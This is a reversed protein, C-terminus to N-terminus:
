RENKKIMIFLYVSSTVSGALLSLAICYESWSSMAFGSATVVFNILWSNRFFHGPFRSFVWLSMLYTIAFAITSCVLFVWNLPSIEIHIALLWSFFRNGIFLFLLICLLGGILIVLAKDRLDGFLKKESIAFEKTLIPQLANIPMLFVPRILLILLLIDREFGLPTRQSIIPFMAPVGLLTISFFFTGTVAGVADKLFSLGKDRVGLFLNINFNGKSRIAILFPLLSGIPILAASISAGLPVLYSVLIYAGLRGLADAVILLSAIGTLGDAAYQVAYILQLNFILFGFFFSLAISLGSGFPMSDLNTLFLALGSLFAALLLILALLSRGAASSGLSQNTTSKVVLLGLGSAVATFAFYLSWYKNFISFNNEGLLHTLYIITAVGVIASGATALLLRASGPFKQGYGRIDIAKM